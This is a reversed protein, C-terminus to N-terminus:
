STYETTRIAPAEWGVPMMKNVDDVHMYQLECGAFFGSEM